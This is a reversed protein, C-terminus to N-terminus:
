EEVTAESSDENEEESLKQLSVQFIVIFSDKIINDLTGNFLAIHKGGARMVVNGKNLANLAAELKKGSVAVLQNGKIDSTKISSEIKDELGSKAILTKGEEIELKTPCKDADGNIANNKNIFSVAKTLAQSDACIAGNQEEIMKEIAEIPIVSAGAQKITYMLVKGGIQVHVFRSDIYVIVSKQGEAFRSLHQVAERPIIVNFANKDQETHQTCYETVAVDMKKVLADQNENGTLKTFNAKVKSCAITHSDTSFGKLEDSEPFLRIVANHLGRTDVTDSTFACGKNLLTSLETGAIQFRYFFSLPTIADPIQGEVPLSTKVKGLIGVELITGTLELYVDENFSLVSEVISIFKTADVPTKVASGDWDEPKKAAFNYSIQESDTTLRLACAVNESMDKVGLELVIKSEPKKVQTAIKIVSSLTDNSIIFRMIINECGANRLTDKVM